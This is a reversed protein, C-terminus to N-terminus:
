AIVPVGLGLVTVAGSRVRGDEGVLYFSPFATVSFETVVPGNFPEAVVTAASGMAQAYSDDYPGSVVALVQSRDYGADEILRLFHPVQAPCAKCETDFFGILAPRRPADEGDLGTAVIEPIRSGKALLEPGGPRQDALMASHERLRRIVAFTLVLNLACVVGVLVVAAILFPM